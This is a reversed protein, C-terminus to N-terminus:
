LDDTDIFEVVTSGNHGHIKLLDEISDFMEFSVTVPLWSLTCRKNSFVCGEAVVGTGSIGSVDAFRKLYFRRLTVV